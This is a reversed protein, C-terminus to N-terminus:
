TTSTQTTSLRLWLCLFAGDGGREDRCWSRRQETKENRVVQTQPKRTWSQRLKAPDNGGERIRKKRVRRAKSTM